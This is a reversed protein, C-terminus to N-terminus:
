GARAGLLPDLCEEVSGEREDVLLARSVERDLLDDVAGLLRQAGEVLMEIALILKEQRQELLGNALRGVVDALRDLRLGLWHLAEM